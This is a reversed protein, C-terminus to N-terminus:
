RPQDGALDENGPGYHKLIVLDQASSRNVVTVGARAAEASVFFEDNSLEGFRIVTAAEIDHSGISGYGQVVILGYADSDTVTVTAGPKVSLEKGSAAVSKYVVWNELAGEGAERDLAVDGLPTAFADASSLALGRLPVRHSPGLLVVRRLVDRAPELTAYASGAVPGSYVFGAHPVILAKPPGGNAARERGSTLCRRVTDRLEGADGPYFMGAVAPPRVRM